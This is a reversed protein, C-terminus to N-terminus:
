LVLRADGERRTLKERDLFELLPIAYKRTVGAWEKFEPVSFRRGKQQRVEDKLAAIISSHFVLEDGVRVLKGNRILIQLLARARAPELGSKALVESTAPVALGGAVFANEIKGLAAQEDQQFAIKHTSLRVIDGESVLTKVNALVADAVFAPAGPMARGRLEEKGFGPALPNQKHFASVGAAMERGKEEAWARNMLWLQPERVVLFENARAAAEIEDPM